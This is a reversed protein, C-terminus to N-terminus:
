LHREYTVKMPLQPSQWGWELIGKDQFFWYFVVVSFLIKVLFAHEWSVESYVDKLSHLDENVIALFDSKLVINSVWSGHKQNQYDGSCSIEKKQCDAYFIEEPKWKTSIKESRKKNWITFQLFLSMMFAWRWFRSLIMSSEQVSRLVIMMVLELILFL